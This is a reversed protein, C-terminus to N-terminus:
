EALSVDVYFTSQIVLLPYMFSNCHLVLFQVHELALWGIVLTLVKLGFMNPM